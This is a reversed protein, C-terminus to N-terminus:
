RNDPEIFFAVGLVGPGAHTVIAPPMNRVPVDSLGLAGALEDALARAEDEAAAHMVSLYAGDHAPAEAIVLEVLRARARQYTRQKEFQDVRGERFTLIPKIRLLGGLLAAAGGIRGGRALYELTAVLFYIRCRASLAEIRAVIEDAGLGEENWAVAREVLTALPSSILGTDIIRIDATSFARAALTASRVTGSVKASPHICLIPEGKPALRAFAESFLEVPPAATKPLASESALRRLFTANDIEVGELLSEQGFVIVQPIVTIDHAAAYEPTLVSLTDTIISVM